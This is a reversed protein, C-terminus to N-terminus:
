SSTIEVYHGVKTEFKKPNFNYRKTHASPKTKGDLSGNTTLLNM